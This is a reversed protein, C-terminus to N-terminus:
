RFLNTNRLANKFDQGVMHWDNELAKSDAEAPTRSYNFM